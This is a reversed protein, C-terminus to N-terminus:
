AGVREAPGRRGRGGPPFHLPDPVPRGRLSRADNETTGGTGRCLRTNEGRREGPVQLCADYAVVEYGFRACQLAIKQGMTGMGVVLIKRIDDVKM